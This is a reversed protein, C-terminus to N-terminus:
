ETPFFFSMMTEHRDVPEFNLSPSSFNTIYKNGREREKESINIPPSIIEDDRV